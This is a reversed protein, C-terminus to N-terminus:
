RRLTAIDGDQEGSLPLYLGFNIWAHKFLDPKERAAEIAKNAFECIKARKIKIGVKDDESRLGADIEDLLSEGWDWYDNSIHTQLFNGVHQDVPQQIHTANAILSREHIKWHHIYSRKAQDSSHM